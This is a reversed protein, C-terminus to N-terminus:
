GEHFDLLKKAPIDLTDAIDLLTDLSVATPMNPAEINSIHTRSLGILDALQMQSIGKLKRYYAVNLGIMKYEQEHKSM